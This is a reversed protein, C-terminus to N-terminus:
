LGGKNHTSNFARRYSCSCCVITKTDAAKVFRTTKEEIKCYEFIYDTNAQQQKTLLDFVKSKQEPTLNEYVYYHQPNQEKDHWIELLEQNTLKLQTM